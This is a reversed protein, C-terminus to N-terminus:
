VRISKANKVIGVLITYFTQTIMGRTWGTAVSVM